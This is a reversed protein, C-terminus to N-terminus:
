RCRGPEKQSGLVPLSDASVNRELIESPRSLCRFPLMHERIALTHTEESIRLYRARGM